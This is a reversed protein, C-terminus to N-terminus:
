FGKEIAIQVLAKLQKKYNKYHIYQTIWEPVIHAELHKGFRM